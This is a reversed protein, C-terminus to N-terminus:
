AQRKSPPALRNRLAQAPTLLVSFPPVHALYYFFKAAVRLYNRPKYYPPCALRILQWHDIINVQSRRGFMLRWFERFSIASTVTRGYGTRKVENAVRADYSLLLRFGARKARIGMEYDSGYHPLHRDDFNGAQEFVEIPYLTGKTSVTDIDDRVTIGQPLATTRAPGLGSFVGTRWDVAVGGDWIRTQDERDVALSGVIARGHNVSTTVLTQVYQRDFTCDNNITLVFDGPKTRKLIEAVGRRMAGTWWYNGDGRLLHLRPYTTRLYESIGDTSGDDVFVFELAPYSQQALLRFLRRVLTAENHGAALCFVTSPTSRAM